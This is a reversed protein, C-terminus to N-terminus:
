RQAWAQASRARRRQEMSDLIWDHQIHYPQASIAIYPMGLFRRRTIETLEVCNLSRAGVKAVVRSIAKRVAQAGARGFAVTKIVGVVCFLHWGSADLARGLAASNVEGASRWSPTCAETELGLNPLLAGDEILMTGDPVDGFHTSMHIVQAKKSRDM